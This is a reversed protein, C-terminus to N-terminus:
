LYGEILDYYKLLIHKLMRHLINCDKMDNMRHRGEEVTEMSRDRYWSTTLKMNSDYPTPKPGVSGERIGGDMVCVEISGVVVLM